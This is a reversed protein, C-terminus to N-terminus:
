FKGVPLSYIYPGFVCILENDYLFMGKEYINYKTTPKSESKILRWNNDGLYSNLYKKVVIIGQTSCSYVEASQLLDYGGGVFVYKNNIVKMM